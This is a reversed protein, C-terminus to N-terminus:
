ITSLTLVVNGFTSGQSKHITIAMACTFLFQSRLIVALGVIYQETEQTIPVFYCLNKRVKKVHKTNLMKQCSLFFPVEDGPKTTGYDFGRLVGIPFNVLEDSTDLNVTMM